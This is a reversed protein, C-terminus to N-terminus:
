YPWHQGRGKKGQRKRPGAVPPNTASGLIDRNVIDALEECYDVQSAKTEPTNIGTSFVMTLIKIDIRIESHLICPVSKTTPVLAKINKSSHNIIDVIEELGKDRELRERLRERM